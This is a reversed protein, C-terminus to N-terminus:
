RDLGSGQLKVPISCKASLNLFSQNLLAALTTSWPDYENKKM